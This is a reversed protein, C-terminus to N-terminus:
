TRTHQLYHTHIYSLSLSHTHTHSLSLSHTHTHSLSLSLTHTHTHSLSLAHTHTHTHCLSLTHKLPLYHTCPHSLPLSFSLTHTNFKRQFDCQRFDTGGYRQSQNPTVTLTHIETHTDTDTDLSSYELWVIVESVMYMWRHTVTLGQEGFRGLANCGVISKVHAMFDKFSLPRSASNSQVSDKPLAFTIISFHMTKNENHTHLLPCIRPRIELM